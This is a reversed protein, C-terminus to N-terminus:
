PLVFSICLLPLRARLSLKIHSSLRISATQKALSSSNLPPLSSATEPLDSDRAFVTHGFEQLMHLGEESTLVHGSSHKLCIPPQPDWPALIKLRHYSLRPNPKLARSIETIASLTCQKRHEKVQRRHIASTHKLARHASAYACLAFAPLTPWVFATFEVDRGYRRGSLSLQLYTRQVPPHICALVPPKRLWLPM